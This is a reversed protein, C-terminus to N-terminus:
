RCFEARGGSPIKDGPRINGAADYLKGQFAVPDPSMNLVILRGQPDQPFKEQPLADTLFVITESTGRCSAGAAFGNKLAFDWHGENLTQQHDRYFRLYNAIVKKHDESVTRLDISLMPVGVLSAIMHCGVTEASEDSGFYVPDAHIPMKDGLILRLQVCRSYNEMFDFPVDGARFATALAATVPTAYRQRFEILADPKLERVKGILLESYKKVARCHPRNEDPEIQDIFDIKLGDLDMTEFVAFISEVTKRCATEDAPDYVRYGEHLETLFRSVSANLASRSGALFPAVWFMYNLDSKQAQSVTNKLGPLKQESIRWDGIDRYWEPLTKPTVRKSEGYCWGDDVIFTGFGLHAAEEANRRMYEDTLAGHAAYWTCYVPEWAGRPYAPRAPMLKERYAELVETLPRDSVDRFIEFPETEPAVSLVFSVEYRCNEQDMKCSVRCDDIGDTLGIACKVQYNRNLFVLLPVSRNFGCHFELRWPLKMPPVAFADAHWVTATDVIPVQAGIKLIGRSRALIEPTIREEPCPLVEGGANSVTICSM